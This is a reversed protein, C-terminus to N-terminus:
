SKTIFGLTISVYTIIIFTIKLIIESIGLTNRLILIAPIFPLLLHPLNDRVGFFTTFTMLFVVIISSAFKYLLNVQIAEIFIRGALFYILINVITYLIIIISALTINSKEAFSYVLIYLPISLTCYILLIGASKINNIVIPMKIIKEKRILVM